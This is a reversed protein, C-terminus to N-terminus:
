GGVKEFRQEVASRFTRSVPVQTGNSLEVQMRQGNVVLGRVAKDAVWHSRHVQMGLSDPLHRVADSFRHLVM